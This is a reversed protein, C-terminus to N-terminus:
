IDLDLLLHQCIEVRRRKRSTNLLPICLPRPSQEGLRSKDRSNRSAFACRVDVREQGLTQVPVRPLLALHRVLRKALKPAHKKLLLVLEAAQDITIPLM